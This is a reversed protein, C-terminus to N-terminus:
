NGLKYQRRLNAFVESAPKTKGAKVDKESLQMIKLLTFANKMEQYSEVDILVARSEGNQTIIIPEKRNNVFNMMDAANTKIYSIPKICEQVNTIMRAELRKINSYKSQYKLSSFIFATCTIRSKIVVKKLNM